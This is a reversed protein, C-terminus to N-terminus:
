KGQLYDSLITDSVPHQRKVIFSCMGDDDSAVVLPVLHLNNADIVAFDYYGLTNACQGNADKAVINIGSQLIRFHTEVSPVPPMFNIVSFQKGSSGELKMPGLPDLVGGYNSFSVGDFSTALYLGYGWYDAGADQDPTNGQSNGSCSALSASVILSLIFPVTKM